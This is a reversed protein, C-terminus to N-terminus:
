FITKIKCHNKGNEKVIHRYELFDIGNEVKGIQTKKNLNLCLKEKCLCGIEEKCFHLYNKDRSILIMDDM